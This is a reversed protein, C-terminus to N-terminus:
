PILYACVHVFVYPVFKPLAEGQLVKDFLLRMGAFGVGVVLLRLTCYGNLGNFFSWFRSSFAFVARFLFSWFEGKYFM